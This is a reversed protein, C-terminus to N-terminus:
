GQAISGATQLNYVGGGQNENFFTTYELSYVTLRLGFELPDFLGRGTFIIKMAAPFLISIHSPPDVVRGKRSRLDSDIPILWAM